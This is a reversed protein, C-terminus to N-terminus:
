FSNCRLSSYHLYIFFEKKKKGQPSYDWAFIPNGPHCLQSIKRDNLLLFFISWWVVRWLYGEVRWSCQVLKKVSCKLQNLLFYNFICWKLAQLSRNLCQFLVSCLHIQVKVKLPAGSLLSKQMLFLGSIYNKYPISCPAGEEQQMESGACGPDSCPFIQLGPFLEHHAWTPIHAM